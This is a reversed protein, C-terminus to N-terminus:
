DWHSKWSPCIPGEHRDMPRTQDHVAHVMTWAKPDQSVARYDVEGRYHLHNELCGVRLAELADQLYGAAAHDVAGLRGHGVGMRHVVECDLCLGFVKRGHHDGLTGGRAANHITDEVVTSSPTRGVEM